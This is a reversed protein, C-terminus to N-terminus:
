HELFASASDAITEFVEPRYKGESKHMWLHQAIRQHKQDGAFLVRSPEGDV